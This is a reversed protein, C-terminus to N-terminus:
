LFGFIVTTLDMTWCIHNYVKYGWSVLQTVKALNNVERLSWKRM